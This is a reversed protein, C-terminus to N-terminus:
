GARRSGPGYLVAARREFSTVMVRVAEHFFAGMIKGLLASRFEFDVHFDVITNGRGDPEFIWHNVLYRFPGDTYAVDIREGPTLTVRSTFRERIMKFGVTMDAWIVNDQRKRIRLGLCWPLFKPYAEIDAVMSYLQEPSYPLTRRESHTPM